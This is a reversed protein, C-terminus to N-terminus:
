VRDGAGAPPEVKGRRQLWLAAVWVAMAWAAGAAWGALVDTPWHVGLYVRSMGVLLALLVSLGLFYAKERWSPEFRALLAGLTLYTAAALMAHNSPFSATYVEAGHPVLDPRPRAFVIKLLTGALTGGAVSALVLLAAAARRTMLLYGIVALTIFTLVFNSGLATIDRMMEEFWRPGLPDSADAPNRFALLVARDFAETEGERVEDALNVFVWIGGAALGLTALVAVEARAFAFTRSALELGQRTLVPVAGRLRDSGRV